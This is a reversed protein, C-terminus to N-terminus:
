VASISKDDRFHTHTRISTERPSSFLLCHTILNRNTHGNRHSKNNSRKKETKRRQKKANENIKKRKKEGQRSVNEQKNGATEDEM